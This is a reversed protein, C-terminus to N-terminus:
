FYHRLTLRRPCSEAPFDIEWPFRLEMWGILQTLKQQSVASYMVISVVWQTAFFLPNYRILERQDDENGCGNEDKPEYEDKPMESNDDEALFFLKRQLKKSGAITDRIGRCTRQALILDAEPVFLLIMETVEPIAFTKQAATSM